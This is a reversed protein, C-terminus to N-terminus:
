KFCFSRLPSAETLRYYVKRDKKYFSKAGDAEPAAVYGGYYFDNREADYVFYHIKKLEVLLYVLSHGDPTYGYVTSNFPDPCYNKTALAINIKGKQVLAGNETLKFVWVFRRFNDLMFIFKDQPGSQMKIFGGGPVDEEEDQLYLFRSRVKWTNPCFNIALLKGSDLSLVLVNKQLGTVFCSFIHKSTEPIQINKAYKLQSADEGLNLIDISSTRPDPENWSPEPAGPDLTTRYIVALGVDDLCPLIRQINKKVKNEENKHIM